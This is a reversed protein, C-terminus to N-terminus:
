LFRSKEVERGLGGTENENRFVFLIDRRFNSPESGEHRSAVACREVVTLKQVHMVRGHPRLTVVLGGCFGPEKPDFLSSPTGRAVRMCILAFLATAASNTVKIQGRRSPFIVLNGDRVRHHSVRIRLEVVHM